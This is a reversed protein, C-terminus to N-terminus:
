AGRQRGQLFSDLKSAKPQPSVSVRSRGSPTLGLEAYLGKLLTATKLAFTAEPRTQVFKV